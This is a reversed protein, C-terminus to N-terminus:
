QPKARRAASRARLKAFVEDGPIPKVKGSALDDYRRGLTERTYALEDYLGIVADELLEDSPRGSDRSMQELKSQADPTLHVEMQQSRERLIRQM